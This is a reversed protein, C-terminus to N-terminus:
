VGAFHHEIQIAIQDLRIEDERLVAVLDKYSCDSDRWMGLILEGNGGKHPYHKHLQIDDTTLLGLKSGILAWKEGTGSLQKSWKLFLEPPIQFSLLM